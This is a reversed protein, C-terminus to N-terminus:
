QPMSCPLLIIKRDREESVPEPKYSDTTETPISEIKIFEDKLDPKSLLIVGADIDSVSKSIEELKSSDIKLGLVLVDVDGLSMDKVDPRAGNAEWYIIHINDIKVSYFDQLPSSVLVGGVEYEGPSNIVIDNLKLGGDFEINVLKNNGVLRNDKTKFIM